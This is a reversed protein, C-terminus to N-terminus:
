LLSSGKFIFKHISASGPRLKNTDYEESVLELYKNDFIAKWNYGTSPKETLSLTFEEGIVAEITQAPDSEMIAEAEVKVNKVNLSSPFREISEVIKYSNNL